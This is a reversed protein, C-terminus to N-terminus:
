PLMRDRVLATLEQYGVLFQKLTHVSAGYTALEAPQLGDEDYARRFDPVKQLQTLLHAAVPEHLSARPTLDSAEFQKWWPYPISQVVDKGVLETWHLHHRYAAALLRPRLGRKTFAQHARKFVAVGAWHIAAPDVVIQQKDVMRKVHDDVRGVMITVVNRAKAPDKARKVGREIAEAVAIAQAVTFSVTANVNIGRAVLEEMAAIGPLTTPAKIAINPALAALEVGHAIMKETSRWHKPSVQVCLWGKDGQTRDYVPRLLKAAEVALAAILRWAVEDESAAPDQKVLEDVVPLWRAKDQQVAAGVIVPNSTAGVAGNAVADQLENLACSDNWFDVGLAATQQMKSTM